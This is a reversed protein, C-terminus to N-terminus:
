ICDEVEKSFVMSNDGCIVRSGTQILRQQDAELVLCTLVGTAYAGTDLNIRNPLFEPDGTVTHGHVVIKEFQKKSNLFEDRIWMIDEPNQRSIPYGPRIGAHVFFYSGIEFSITTKILFDLHSHPVKERLEQQIRLFEERKTPIKALHVGYSALTAQGGFSLWSRGVSEEQLFALFTQEHNGRLYVYEVSPWSSNLLIEIVERSHMGRDIFDGLFVIVVRGSFGNVDLKIRDLVEVLLDHRGHIDGVCYLRTDDPLSPPSTVKKGFFLNVM